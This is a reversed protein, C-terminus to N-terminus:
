ILLLIGAATNSPVRGFVDSMWGFFFSGVLLGAMRLTGSLPKLYASECVITFDTSATQSFVSQDFAWSTCTGNGCRSEEQSWLTKNFGEEEGEVCHHRPTFDTFVAGYVGPAMTALCFSLILGTRLQFWGVRGVSEELVSELDKNKEFVVNNKQAEYEKGQDPLSGVQTHPSM